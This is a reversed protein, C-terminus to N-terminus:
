RVVAEFRRAVRNGVRDRARVAITYRGPREYAHRFRAGGRGRTATASASRADLRRQLGSDPDRLRVTVLRAGARVEVEVRPARGDVRLKVAPSLVQQGLRDTAMAQARRVGSGLLARPPLYSRRRLGGKVVRGDLLM